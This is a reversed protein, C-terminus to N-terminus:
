LHLKTEAKSIIEILQDKRFPKALYDDFGQELFEEKDNNMAFATVAIFQANKYESIKRIDKIVEIGDVGKRLNIDMLIIDYKKVKVKSIAEDSSEAFDINYSKSIFARVLNRADRDDDVFLINTKSAYGQTTDNNILTNENKNVPEKEAVSSKLLPFKIIFTSGNNDESELSIEGRMLEVYKKTITLGLGTGEFSRNIGESVQRFAEWIQSQKDKPIGIGTDSIKIVAFDKDSKLEVTVSGEKTYKLANNILNNSISNLLNEDLLCEIKDSSTVFKLELDRKQAIQSYLRVTEYISPVINIRKLNLEIMEAELKSLNLILNLTELLRNGSKNITEAMEKLEPNSSLEEQLLESFGLIGNLPTRLEHSMNAFFVSKIRNMEEAKEKAYVLEEIMKKKETIDEEIAIFHTIKGDENVIPSIVANEWYLEGSKKKNHFEGHWDKGSKITDWLTTYFENNHEGSKLINPNKGIVEDSTYGTTISFQPNVYEINGDYDTIVVGIPNREIGKQLKLTIEDSRKKEIYISIQNAIMELVELSHKDLAKPNEYNQVVIAGESKGGIILPVGIWVESREGLLKIKGAEALEAIDKKYLLLSKKEKVVYGTLSKDASWEIINDKEDRRFPSYLMDTKDNYFAVLFNTTDFLASLENRVIEYLENISKVKVVANAINFQIRQTIEPIKRDTIDQFTGRLKVVEGNIIVPKCISRVWINNGKATIFRFELDFPNGSKISNDLASILKKRDDPPYYNVADEFSPPVDFDVEHIAFTEETWDVKKTKVDFEWGGVKAMTSTAKLLETREKIIENYKKIDSIERIIAGIGTKGNKFKVPFKKAIFTSNNVKEEVIYPQGSKLVILDSNRCNAASEKDMFDYDTKYLVDSKEKGFFELLKKNVVIYRFEEDKIFVINEDENIVYYLLEGLNDGSQIIESLLKDESIQNEKKSM